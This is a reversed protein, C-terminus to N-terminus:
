KGNLHVAPHSIDPNPQLLLQSLFLYGGVGWKETTKGLVAGSQAREPRILM